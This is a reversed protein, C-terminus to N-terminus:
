RSITGLQKNRVNFEGATSEPSFNWTKPLKGIRNLLQKSDLPLYMAYGFNGLKAIFIMHKCDVQLDPQQPHLTKKNVFGKFKRLKYSM